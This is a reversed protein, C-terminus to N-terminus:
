MMRFIIRRAVSARFNFRYYEDPWVRRKKASADRRLSEPPPKQRAEELAARQAQLLRAVAKKRARNLIAAVAAGKLQPDQADLEQADGSPDLVVRLWGVLGALWGVVVIIIIIGRSDHLM